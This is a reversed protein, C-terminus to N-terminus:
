LPKRRWLSKRSWIQRRSQSLITKMSMMLKMMMEMKALVIGPISKLTSFRTLSSRRIGQQNRRLLRTMLLSNMTRHLNGNKLLIYVDNDNKGKKKSKDKDKSALPKRAGTRYKSGKDDKKPSSRKNLVYRKCLWVLLCAGLVSGVVIGICFDIPSFQPYWSHCLSQIVGQM